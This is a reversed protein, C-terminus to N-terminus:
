RLSFVVGANTSIAFRDRYNSYYKAGIDIALSESVHFQYGIGFSHVWYDKGQFQFTSASQESSGPVWEVTVLGLKEIVYGFGTVLYARDSDLVRFELMLRFIRSVNGTAHQPQPPSLFGTYKDFIYHNYEVLPSVEFWDLLPLEYYAGLNIGPYWLRPLMDNPKSTNFASPFSAGVYAGIRPQASVGFPLLLVAFLVGKM